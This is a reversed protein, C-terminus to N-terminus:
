LGDDFQGRRVISIGPSTGQTGPLDWRAVEKFARKDSEAVAGPMSASFPVLMRGGM